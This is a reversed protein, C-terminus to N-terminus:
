MCIRINDFVYGFGVEDSQYLERAFNPDLLKPMEAFTYFVKDENAEKSQMVHIILLLIQYASLLNLAHELKALRSSGHKISSYADWWQLKNSSWNSFPIFKLDNNILKTEYKELDPCITLLAHKYDSIDSARFKNDDNAYFILKKMAIEVKSGLLVIENHLFPSDAEYNVTREFSLYKRAEIFEGEIILYNEWEYKKILLM